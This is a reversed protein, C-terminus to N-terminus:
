PFVILEGNEDRMPADPHNNNYNILSTAFFSNYYRMQDYPINKLFEEDWKQVSTEIMFAHKKVSYAGLHYRTVDANWSNPKSLRDTLLLRRWIKSKEGLGFFENEVVEFYLSVTKSKLETDRLVIIPVLAHVSDAKIVYLKELAPNDFGLYHKGPVANERGEQVIQKLRFPRDTKAVEGITYIDFYITDVVVSEPHYYFTESKLSDTYESIFKKTLYTGFQVRPVDNFIYYQDKKCSNFIILLSFLSFYLYHRKKM